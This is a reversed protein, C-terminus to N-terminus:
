GRLALRRALDLAGTVALAQINSRDGYARVKRVETEADLSAGVFVTGPPKGEQPAPGAVGTASIGLDAGFRQAASRALLAATEESVAGEDALVDEPVGAVRNKAETAYVVLGGLFFDSAGELETLEAAIRGGTLSEAVAVTLSKSRLVEGLASGLDDGGEVAADGLRARIESEVPDIRALADEETGAKATLRVRVRGAGARFAITPQTQAEVLDRIREHTHSEGLGIVLVERSVTAGGNGADRLTPLVSKELMARMEWPVGPLAFLIGREHKIYFGPATGEPEIVTAGRPVEAQRLNEDPMPRNLKEFISAIKRELDARRELPVGLLDSVVERTIDDPTPGLGGTVIVADARGLADSFARKMRSPNDGVVSHFYVDVGISALASSIEQANTNPIQGLLLETGM